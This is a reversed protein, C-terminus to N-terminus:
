KAHVRKYINCNIEIKYSFRKNKWNFMVYNYVILKYYM